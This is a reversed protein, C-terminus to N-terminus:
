AADEIGLTKALNGAANERRQLEREFAMVASLPDHSKTVIKTDHCSATWEGSYYYLMPVTWTKQLLADCRVKFGDVHAMIEDLDTM